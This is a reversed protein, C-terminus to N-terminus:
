GQRQSQEASKCIGAHSGRDAGEALEDRDYGFVGNPKNQRNADTRKKGSVFSVTRGDIPKAKSTQAGKVSAAHYDDSHVAPNRGASPSAIAKNQQKAGSEM